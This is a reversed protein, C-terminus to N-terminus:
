SDEVILLGQGVPPHQSTPLFSIVIILNSLAKYKILTQNGASAPNETARVLMDLSARYSM